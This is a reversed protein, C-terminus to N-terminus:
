SRLGVVVAEAGEAFLFTEPTMGVDRLAAEIEDPRLFHNGQVHESLNQFAMPRRRPNRLASLDASWAPEWLVAVGGPKLADRMKPFVSSKRDWVHHLARNMAILDAPEPFSFEHIDGTQFRARESLGAERALRQAHGVNEAFGDVGLGRMRPFRALLRRLYWGSGCGLDVALGGREGVQAFAPVTPLVEREFFAGYNAEMMPGYWPLITAREALVQEGPREGTKMLGAAREAMHAGLVAQVAFPMLTGPVDPRFARGLETLAFRGQKEDLYGFAYAAECWRQLYGADVSAAAALEAVTADPVDGLSDFLRNSVGIFAISLATAGQAQALIAKKLDDPSQM